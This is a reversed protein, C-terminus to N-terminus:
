VRRNRLPLPVAIDFLGQSQRLRPVEVQNCEVNFQGSGVAEYNVLSQSFNRLQFPRRNKKHRVTGGHFINLSSEVEARRIENLLWKFRPNGKV